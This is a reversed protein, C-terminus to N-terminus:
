SKLQKRLFLNNKTLVSKSRVKAIKRDRQAGMRTQLHRIEAMILQYNSFFTRKHSLRYLSVEMKEKLTLDMGNTKILKEPM